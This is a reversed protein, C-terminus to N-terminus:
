SFYISLNKITVSTKGEVKAQLELQTPGQPVNKINRLECVGEKTNKFRGTAIVNNNNVDYIRLDYFKGAPLMFGIVFISNINNFIPPGMWTLPILATYSTEKFDDVRDAFQITGSFNLGQNPVHISVLRDLESKELDTLELSFIVKVLTDVVHLGILESDIINNNAVEVHFQGQELGKPFDSINYTITTM